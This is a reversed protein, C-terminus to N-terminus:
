FHVGAGVTVAEEAGFAANVYVSFDPVDYSLGVRGGLTDAHDIDLTGTEFLNGSDEELTVFDYEGDEYAIWEPGASVHVPGATFVGVAGLTLVHQTIDRSNVYVPPTAKVVREDSFSTDLRLLQGFLDVEFDGQHFVAGSVGAAFATGDGSIAPHESNDLDDVWGASVFVDMCDNIGYDAGLFYVKGGFDPTNFRYRSLIEYPITFDALGAGADWHGPDPHVAPNFLLQARVATAALGSLFAAAFKTQM